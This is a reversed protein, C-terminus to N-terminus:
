AVLDFGGDIAIVQGTIWDSTPDAVAVILRAVDAPLGRRGLPVPPGRRLCPPRSPGAPRPSPVGASPFRHAAAFARTQSM